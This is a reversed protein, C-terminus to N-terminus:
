TPAVSDPRTATNWPRGPRTAPMSSDRTYAVLSTETDSRVSSACSRTSPPSMRRLEASSACCVMASSMRSCRLGSQGAGRMGATVADADGEDGLGDGDTLAVGSAVVGVGPCADAVGEASADPVGDGAGGVGYSGAS